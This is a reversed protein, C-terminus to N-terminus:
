LPATGVMAGISHWQVPAAWAFAITLALTVLIEPYLHRADKRFIHLVFNM